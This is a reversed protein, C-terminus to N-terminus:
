KKKGCEIVWFPESDIRLSITRDYKGHYEAEWRMYWDGIEANSPVHVFSRVSQVGLEKRPPDSPLYTIVYSNVLQRKVTVPLEIKKDIAVEYFLYGGQCVQKNTNTIKIKGHAEAPIIPWYKWYIKDSEILFIMGILIVMVALVRKPLSFIM